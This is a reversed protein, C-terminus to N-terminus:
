GVLKVMERLFEIAQRMRGDPDGELEREITLAGNYGIEKLANLYPVWPVDGEGLATERFGQVVQFVEEGGEAFAHYVREPDSPALWKGDKAHTHVIYPALNYVADVPNEGIVMALNAPDMNVRMGKCGLDDLFSRLVTSSEPGTELAFACGVEDGYCGLIYCAKAMIDRRPHNRDEPVVGIHTTVVRCDLDLALDMIRKSKEIKDPNEEPIQFGHGGLDGCIASFHLGLDRTFTLLERRQITNLNEPAMEGRVAYVQVTEAGLSAAKRIGSRVDTKFGDTLMGIQFAM